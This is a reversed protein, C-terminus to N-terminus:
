TGTLQIGGSLFYAKHTYAPSINLWQVYDATPAVGAQNRPGVARTGPEGGDVFMMAVGGLAYVVAANSGSAGFGGQTIRENDDLTVFVRDGSACSDSCWTPSAPDTDRATVHITGVRIGLIEGTGVSQTVWIVKGHAELHAVRGGAQSAGTNDGSGILTALATVAVVWRIAKWSM